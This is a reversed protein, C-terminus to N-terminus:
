VTAEEARTIIYESRSVDPSKAVAIVSFVSPTFVKKAANETAFFLGNV